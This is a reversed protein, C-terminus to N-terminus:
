AKYKRKKFYILFGAGVVVAVAISAFVVFREPFSEPKAVTFSVTESAGINGFTDNAYVAISHLGNTVNRITSNGTITINQGGDLSYSALTLLKNVTFVLPVTSDNYTQHNLPSLLTINAPIHELVYSPDPTGYGIPSYQENTVNGQGGGIVYFVDNAVAVAPGAAPYPMSAGTAWSNSAPNYVSVLNSYGPPYGPPSISMPGGPFGGFIYVRKPAKVGITAGAGQDTGLGSNLAGLSWADTIANFIQTTHLFAASPNQESALYEDFGGFVYITSDVVASSAATVPYPMSVGTSWSDMNPDYIQTENVTTYAPGGTGGMVYIKDDVTDAQAEATSIPMSAATSWTNTSPDYVENVSCSIGEDIEFGGMVFIKNDYTAVSFSERPTPMSAIATWTDTSPDYAFSNSRITISNPHGFPVVGILYITGNVVAAEDGSYQSPMPAKETWSNQVASDSSVPKALIMCSAVLLVLVLLLTVSKTVSIRM